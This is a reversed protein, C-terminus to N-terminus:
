QCHKAHNFLYMFSRLALPPSSLATGGLIMCDYRVMLPAHRLRMMASWQMNYRLEYDSDNEYTRGLLRNRSAADAFLSVPLVPHFPVPPRPSYLHFSTTKEHSM